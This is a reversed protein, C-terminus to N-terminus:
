YRSRSSQEDDDHMYKEIQIGHDELFQRAKKGISINSRQYTEELHKIFNYMAYLKDNNEARYVSNGLKDAGTEGNNNRTNVDYGHLILSILMKVIGQMAALHFITNGFNDRAYFHDNFRKDSEYRIMDYIIKRANGKEWQYVGYNRVPIMLPVMYANNLISLDVYQYEMISQASDADNMSVAIHLPTNGMFNRANVAKTVNSNSMESLIRGLAEHAGFLCLIHLVNNNYKDIQTTLINPHESIKDFIGDANKNLAYWFLENYGAAKLAQLNNENDGDYDQLNVREYKGSSKKGGQRKQYKSLMEIIKKNRSAKAIDFPTNGQLNKAYMASSSREKNIAFELGEEWEMMACLHITNNKQADLALSTSFNKSLSKLMNINKNFIASCLVHYGSSSIASKRFPYRMMVENLYQHNNENILRFVINAGHGNTMLSNTRKSKQKSDEYKNKHNRSFGQEDASDNDQFSVSYRQASAQQYIMSFILASIVYRKM